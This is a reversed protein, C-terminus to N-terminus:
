VAWKTIQERKAGILLEEDWATQMCRSMDQVCAERQEYAIQILNYKLGLSWTHGTSLFHSRVDSVQPPFWLEFNLGDPFVVWGALDPHSEHLRGLVMHASKESGVVSNLAM